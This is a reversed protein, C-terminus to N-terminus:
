MVTWDRGEDDEVCFISGDGTEGPGPPFAVDVAGWDEPWFVAKRKGEV